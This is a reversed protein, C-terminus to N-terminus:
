PRYDWGWKLDHKGGTCLMHLAAGSEGESRCGCGFNEVKVEEMACCCLGGKVVCWARADEGDGLKSAGKGEQVGEHDLAGVCRLVIPWSKKGACCGQQAM